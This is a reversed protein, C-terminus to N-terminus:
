KGWACYNQFRSEQVSNLFAQCANSQKGTMSAIAIMRYFSSSHTDYTDKNKLDGAAWQDKLEDRPLLACGFNSLPIGDLNFNVRKMLASSFLDAFDEEAYQDNGGQEQTLCDKESKVAEPWSASVIHGVEHAIIGVGMKPYVITPWSLNVLNFTQMAADDLFPVKSQDCYEFIEAFVEADKFMSAKMFIAQLIKPDELNLKKLNAIATDSAQVAGQLGSSWSALAMDRDPPLILQLDIPKALTTKLKEEVMKQATSEIDHFLTQFRNLQATNPLAAYSNSLQASCIEVANSVLQKFGKPAAVTQAQKSSSYLTKIEDITSAINLPVKKFADQVDSSLIYSLLIRNKMERRIINKETYSLPKGDIAKQIVMEKPSNFTMGPLLSALYGETTRIAIAEAVISQDYPIDQYFTRLIVELNNSEFMPGFWQQFIILSSLTSIANAEDQKGPGLLANLKDMNFALIQQDGIELAGMYKDLHSAYRISQALAVQEPPLQIQDKKEFLKKFMQDQLLAQHIIRGMYNELPKKVNKDIAIGAAVSASTSVKSPNPLPYNAGCLSQICQQDLSLSANVTEVPDTGPVNDEPFTPV